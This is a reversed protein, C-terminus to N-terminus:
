VIVLYGSLKRGSDSEYYYGHSFVGTMHIFRIIKGRHWELGLRRVIDQVDALSVCHGRRTSFGAEGDAIETLIREANEEFEIAEAKNREARIKQRRRSAYKRNKVRNRM